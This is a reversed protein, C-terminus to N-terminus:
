RKSLERDITYLGLKNDGMFEFKCVITHANKEEEVQEDIFWALFNQSAYDNDKGAIDCLNHIMSTVKQEHAYTEKFLDLISNWETPVKAIPALIVRENQDHLYNIFKAAHEQEEAFQKTFWQSAGIFGKSYADQAMSLYLYASFMEANIQDNIAKALKKSIM